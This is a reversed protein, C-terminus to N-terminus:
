AAAGQFHRIRAIAYRNTETPIDLVRLMVRAKEVINLNTTTWKKVVRTKANYEVAAIMLRVWNTIKEAEITGSHQRIEITGYRAYSELNLKVYRTGLARTLGAVTRASDFRDAAQRISQCYRNMNGRRSPPVMADMVDEWKAYWQAMRQIAGFSLDNAGIHLHFGCQRDVTVGAAQLVRCVTEIARLGEEGSLIPSVLEFGGVVSGDPVLKWNRSTVHNYGQVDTPIGAETLLRAITERRRTTKIELEIGYTRSTM